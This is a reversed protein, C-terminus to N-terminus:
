RNTKKSKEHIAREEALEKYYADRDPLPSGDTMEPRVYLFEGPKLKKKSTEKAKSVYCTETGVTLKLRNNSSRCIWVPHGCEPCTEDNLTQYAVALAHDELTWGSQPKRLRLIHASPRLHNAVASRVETMYRYGHEGSLLLIM